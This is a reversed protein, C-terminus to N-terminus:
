SEREATHRPRWYQQWLLTGFMVAAYLALGGIIAFVLRVLNRAYAELIIVRNRTLNYDLERREAALVAAREAALQETKAQIVEAAARYERARAQEEPTLEATCGTLLAVFLLALAITLRAFPRWLLSIRRNM